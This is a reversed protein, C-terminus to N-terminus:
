ITDSKFKEDKFLIQMPIVVSKQVPHPSEHQPLHPQLDHLSKFEAVMVEMVLQLAHKHLEAVDSDDPLFDSCSLSSRHKQPRCDAWDIDGNPQNKMQIAIRSTLYLMTSHHEALNTLAVIKCMYIYKYKYNHYKGNGSREHCVRQHINLNDYVWLFRGSQIVETYHAQTTLERLYNWTSNYSM